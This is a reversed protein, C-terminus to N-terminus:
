PISVIAEDGELTLEFSELSHGTCPGWDCFGTQPHFLAGHNKCVIRDLAVDYFDGTGYDLDVSWHPCSNAFARLADGWRLVFGEEPLKGRQFNFRLSEGNSLKAAGAVRITLPRREDSAAGESV